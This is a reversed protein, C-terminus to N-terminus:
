TPAATASSRAATTPASRTPSRRGSTTTTTAPSCGARGSSGAAVLEAPLADLVATADAVATAGGGPRARHPLRVADPRPVRARLEARPAHVDAPEAAVEVLLVRRRLLDAPGRLGGARDDPGHGAASCRAPGPPTACASVASWSALRARHGRRAARGPARGGLRARRGRGRGCCRPGAPDCTWTSCHRPPHSQCRPTREHANRSPAAMAPAACCPRHRTPRAPACSTTAATPSSTCTSARRWCSGAASPLSCGGRTIPDDAAVVVTVPASLRLGHTRTQADLADALYRHASVCDHRYAAGVHEADRGDLDGLETYGSDAALGAAIEANSRGTLEAVAARRGAADGLLQAGVFVRQCM